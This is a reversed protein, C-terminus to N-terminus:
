SKYNINKLYEKYEKLKDNDLNYRDIKGNIKSYSQSYFVLGRLQFITYVEIDNGHIDFEDILIDVKDGKNLTLDKGWDRDQDNLVEPRNLLRNRILRIM